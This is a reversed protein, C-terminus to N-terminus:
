RQVEVVKRQALHMEEQAGLRNRDERAAEACEIFKEFKEREDLGALHLRHRDEQEALIEPRTDDIELRQGVFSRYGPLIEIQEAPAFIGLFGPIM